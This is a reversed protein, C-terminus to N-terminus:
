TKSIQTRNGFYAIADLYTFNNNLMTECSGNSFDDAINILKSYITRVPASGSSLRKIGLKNLKVINNFMPNVYLNIPCGINLSLKRITEENLMGPIFVCDAGSEKFANGRLIAQKLCEEKEGLNLLYVDTRVNIVFPINLEEKLQSVAEIKELMITLDEISNNEPLGDEINIGVAGAMIIRKVNEKIKQPTEGYGREMDVSLPIDIVRTIEKTIRLLDDFAIVEGDTYGMSFAIGASTTGIAEFGQNEFIKASGGNWANPLLFLEKGYHMNNFKKAFTIQKEKDM